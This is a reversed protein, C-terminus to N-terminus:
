DRETDWISGAVVLDLFEAQNETLASEGVRGQFERAAAQFAQQEKSDFALLVGWADETLRVARDTDRESGYLLDWVRDFALAALEKM